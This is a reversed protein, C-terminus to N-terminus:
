KGNQQLFARLTAEQWPQGQQDYSATSNLGEVLGPLTDIGNDFLIELGAIFAM